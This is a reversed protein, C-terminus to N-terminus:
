RSNQDIKIWFIHWTSFLYCKCIYLFLFCEGEDSHELRLKIASVSPSSADFELKLFLNLRVTTQTHDSLTPDKTQFWIWITSGKMIITDNVDVRVDPTGIKVSRAFDDIIFGSGITLSAGLSINFDLFTLTFSSTNRSTIIWQSDAYTQKPYNHSRLDISDGHLM